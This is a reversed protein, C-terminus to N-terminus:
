VLCDLFISKLQRKTSYAKILDNMIIFNSIIELIVGKFNSVVGYDNLFFIILHEDKIIWVLQIASKKTFEKYIKWLETKWRRIM